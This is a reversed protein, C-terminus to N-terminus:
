LDKLFIGLFENFWKIIFPGQFYIKLFELSKPSFVRLFYLFDHHKNWMDKICNKLFFFVRKKESTRSFIHKYGLNKSISIRPFIIIDLLKKFLIIHLSVNKKQCLNRKFIIGLFRSKHDSTGSFINKFIQNIKQFDKFLIM